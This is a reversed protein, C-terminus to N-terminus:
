RGWQEDDLQGRNLEDIRHIKEDKMIVSVDGGYKIILKSTM